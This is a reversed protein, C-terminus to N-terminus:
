NFDRKPQAFHDFYLFRVARSWHGRIQLYVVMTEGHVCLCVCAHRCMGLVFGTKRESRVRGRARAVVERVATYRM